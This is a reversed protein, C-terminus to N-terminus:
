SNRKRPHEQTKRRKKDLSNAAQGQQGRTQYLRALLTCVHPDFRECEEGEETANEQEQFLM